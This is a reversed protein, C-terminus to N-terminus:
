CVGKEKMEMRIADPDLNEKECLYDLVKGKPISRDKVERQPKETKTEPKPNNIMEIIMDKTYPKKIRRKNVMALLKEIVQEDSM